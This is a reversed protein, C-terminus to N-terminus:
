FQILTYGESQLTVIVTMASLAIGIEPKMENREIGRHYATQGCIYMEVDAKHLAEILTANPNPAGFKRAYVDDLYVDKYAGGHIVLAVKMNEAPVGAQAHMNLFRAVTNIKANLQTPDKPSSAIDFVVKYKKNLSVGFDPNPVEYVAGVKELIPGAKKQGLLINVYLSLMLFLILKIKM